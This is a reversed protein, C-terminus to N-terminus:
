MEVFQERSPRDDGALKLWRAAGPLDAPGAAAPDDLFKATRKDLDQRWIAPYLKRCRESIEQDPSQQGALVADRAPYGIALLGKAAKERDRYDPDGLQAVLAEARRHLEPDAPPAALAFAAALLAPTM